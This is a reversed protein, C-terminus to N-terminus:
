CYRLLLRRLPQPLGAPCLSDSIPVAVGMGHLGWPLVVASGNQDKRFLLVCCQGHHEKGVEM